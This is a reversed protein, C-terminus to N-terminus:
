FGNRKNKDSFDTPTLVIVCMGIFVILGVVEVIIKIGEM